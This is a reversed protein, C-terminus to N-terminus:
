KDGSEWLPETVQGGLEGGRAAGLRLAREGALALGQTRVRKPEPSPLGPPFHPRSPVPQGEWLLSELLPQEPAPYPLPPRPGSSRTQTAPSCFASCPPTLAGPHPQACLLFTPLPRSPCQSPHSPEITPPPHLQTGPIGSAWHTYPFPSIGAWNLRLLAQFSNQLPHFSLFISLRELSVCEGMDVEPACSRPDKRPHEQWSAAGM